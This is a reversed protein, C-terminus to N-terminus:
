DAQRSLPVGASRLLENLMPRPTKSIYFSDQFQGNEFVKVQACRFSIVLDTTKNKTRIRIAHGPDFCTVVSKDHNNAGERIANRIELRTRLDTIPLKGLVRWSVLREEKPNAASQEQESQTAASAFGGELSYLIMEESDKLEASVSPPMRDETM